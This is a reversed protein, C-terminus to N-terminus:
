VSLVCKGSRRLMWLAHSLADVRDYASQASPLDYVRFTALESGFYDVRWRGDHWRFDCPNGRAFDYKCGHIQNIIACRNQVLDYLQSWRYMSDLKGVNCVGKSERGSVFLSCHGGLLM